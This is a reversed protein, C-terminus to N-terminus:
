YRYLIGASLATETIDGSVPFVHELKATLDWDHTLPWESIIQTNIGLATDSRNPYGNLLAGNTDVSYRNTYQNHSVDLGAGIWISWLGLHLNRQLALRAGIRRVNQRIEGAAGELSTAFFYAETWYRWGHPLWDTYVLTLPLVDVVVKSPGDPDDVSFRNLGVLYGVRATNEDPLGIAAASASGHLSLCLLATIITWQTRTM